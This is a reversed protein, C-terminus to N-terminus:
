RPATSAVPVCTSRLPRARVSNGNSRVANTTATARMRSSCVMDTIPSSRAGNSAVAPTIPMAIPKPECLQHLVDDVAHEDQELVGDRDAIHDTAAAARDLPHRHARDLQAVRRRRGGDREALDVVTM